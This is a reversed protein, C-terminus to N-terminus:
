PRSEEWLVECTISNAYINFIYSIYLSHSLVLYFLLLVKTDNLPDLTFLPWM